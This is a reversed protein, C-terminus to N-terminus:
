IWNGSGWGSVLSNQIGWGFIPAAVQNYGTIHVGAPRPIIFGNTLLAMSVADIMTGSLIIVTMSMDQNDQILIQFPAGAFVINLINYMGPVTGDWNNQVITGRLLMRYSNDDLITLGSTSQGPALWVGQGWGLGATGWTFFVNTLPIPIQRTPGIWQGIFDLQQGVAHDLDFLLQFLLLQNQLDVFPQVLLAVTAVFNPKTAHETTILNTYQAANIPGLVPGSSM